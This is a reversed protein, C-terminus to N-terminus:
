ELYSHIQTNYNNMIPRYYRRFYSRRFELLLDATTKPNSTKWLVCCCVTPHASFPSGSFASWIRYSINTNVFVFAAM